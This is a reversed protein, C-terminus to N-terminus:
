GNPRPLIIVNHGVFVDHGIDLKFRASEENENGDQEADANRLQSPRSTSQASDIIVRATWYISSYRGITTGPPFRSPNEECPGLTYMGVEIGHYQRFIARATVSYMPGGELRLVLRRLLSRLVNTQTMGYLRFLIFSCFISKRGEQSVSRRSANLM